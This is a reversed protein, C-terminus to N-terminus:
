EVESRSKKIATIASNYNSEYKFHEKSIETLSVWKYNQHESSDIEIKVTDEIICLFSKEVVDKGWRDFFTSKLKLDILDKSTIGTEELLERSAGQLYSEGNDISGTINQWFSGREKNTQLLLIKKLPKSIVIVQAKKHM